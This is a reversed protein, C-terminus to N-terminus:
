PIMITQGGLQPCSITLYNLSKSVNPVSHSVVQTYVKWNITDTGAQLYAMCPPVTFADRIKAQLFDSQQILSAPYQQPTVLSYYPM